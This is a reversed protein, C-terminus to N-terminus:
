EKWDEAVPERRMLWKFCRLCVKVGGSARLVRHPEGEHRHAPSSCCYCGSIEFGDADRPM